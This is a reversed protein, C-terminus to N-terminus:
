TYAIPLDRVVCIGGIGKEVENGALGYLDFQQAADVLILESQRGGFGLRLSGKVIAQSPFVRSFGFHFLSRFRSFGGCFAHINGMESLISFRDAM